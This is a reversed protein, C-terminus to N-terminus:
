NVKAPRKQRTPHHVVALRATEFARGPTWKPKDDVYSRYEGLLGHYSKEEKQVKIDADPDGAQRLLEIEALILQHYPELLRLKEDRTTADMLELFADTARSSTECAKLIVRKQKETFVFNIDGPEKKETM